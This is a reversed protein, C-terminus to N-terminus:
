CIQQFNAAHSEVEDWMKDAEEDTVNYLLEKWPQKLTATVQEPSNIELDGVIWKMILTGIAVVEKRDENRMKWKDEVNIFLFHRWPANFLLWPGKSLGRITNRVNEPTPSSPDDLKKDLRERMVQGLMKQGIPRFLLSNTKIEDGIKVEEGISNRMQDAPKRLDPFEDLIANWYIVLEEYLDDLIDDSPCSEKYNKGRQGWAANNSRTHTTLLDITIEYLAIISTFYVEDPKVSEGGSCRVRTSHDEIWSFYEHEQILRRTCIAFADDEEMIIITAKDMPKAHRNLHSFLRRYKKLFEQKNDEANPVIIMVSFEETEFGPPKTQEGEGNILHQIAKLRHQGDLAYYKESGDFKLVGFSGIMAPDDAIIAFEPTEQINVQYWKPNGELAAVVISNFFHDEHNALYNAIQGTARAENLKRQIWMDLAKSDYVESAFKVQSALSAASMKTSYFKWSGLQGQIAPFLKM